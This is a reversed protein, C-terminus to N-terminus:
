TFRNCGVVAHMLPTTREHREQETLGDSFLRTRNAAEGPPQAPKGHCRRARPTASNRLAIRVPSKVASGFANVRYLPVYTVKCLSTPSVQTVVTGFVEYAAISHGPCERPGGLGHLLAAAVTDAATAFNLVQGCLCSRDVPRAAASRLFCRAEAPALVAKHPPPPLPLGSFM